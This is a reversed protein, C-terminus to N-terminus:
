NEPKGEVINNKLDPDDWPCNQQCTDSRHICPEPHIMIKSNPLTNSLEGEIADMTNHTKAITENRCVTLHLDIHRQSGSKRTRLEHYNKVKHKHSKLVDKILKVETEPLASDLLSDISNKTLIVGEYLIYCAIFIATISDLIKFGTITVIGLGIFVGLSSYVDVSLHKADAELAMSDTLRAIKFLYRSVIFNILTSIAMVILALTTDTIGSGILIRNSAEYIIFLAAMIILIAEAFASLNEYKGHGFPHLHDAPKDAQKISFYSMFSAILDISSHIAESIISVSGSLLGAIIKLVILSSNSLISIFAASKKISGEM